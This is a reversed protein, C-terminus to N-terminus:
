ISYLGRLSAFCRPLLDPGIGTVDLNKPRPLWPLGLFWGGPRNSAPGVAAPLQKVHFKSGWGGQWGKVAARTGWM